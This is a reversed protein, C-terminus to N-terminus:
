QALKKNDPHRPCDDCYKGSDCKYVLCCSVRILKLMGSDADVKLSDLHSEPLQCAELWLKAQATIYDNTLSPEHQQLKILSGLLLDALLHNTFGPRIRTWESIQSRYFETLALIAEGAKPIM